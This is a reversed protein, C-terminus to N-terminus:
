QCVASAGVSGMPHVLHVNQCYPGFSIGGMVRLNSPSMMRPVFAVTSRSRDRRMTTAPSAASLRPPDSGMSIRPRSPLSSRMEVSSWVQLSQIGRLRRLLDQVRDSAFMLALNGRPRM